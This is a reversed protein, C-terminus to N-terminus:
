ASGELLGTVAATPIQTFDEYFEGVARFPDPTWPCVIRLGAGRLREVTAAPAVPVAGIVTAAGARRVAEAAAVFTSGTALGDDILVVALGDLRLPEGRWGTARRDVEAATAAIARDLAAAGVRLADVVSQDVIVVGHESVAGMAYEPNGPAGLKNAVVVGLRADLRRAVPEAVPLGGRPIGLVVEAVVHAEELADALRAGAEFRDRYRRAAM